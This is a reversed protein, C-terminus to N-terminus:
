AKVREYAKVGPYAFEDGLAKAQGKIFKEDIPAAKKPIKGEGLAKYFAAPDEIEIVWEKQVRMGKVKNEPAKTEVREAAAVAPVFDAQQELAEAVEDRGADRHKEARDRMEQEARKREEEARAQEIRRAEAQDNLWKTVKGRISQKAANLDKLPQRYVIRAAELADSLPATITTRQEEMQKIEADIATKLAGAQDASAQDTIEFAEVRKVMDETVREIISTNPRVYEVTSLAREGVETIEMTESM